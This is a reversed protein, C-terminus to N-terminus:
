IEIGANNILARLPRREPDTVVRRVLDEVHAPRTIDLLIPEVHESRIAAAAADTRVGALVHFGRAALERATAAGIGTSAGSIVVLERVASRPRVGPGAMENSMTM